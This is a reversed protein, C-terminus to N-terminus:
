KKVGILRTGFHIAFIKQARYFVFGFGIGYMKEFVFKM